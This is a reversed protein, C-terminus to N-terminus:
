QFDDSSKAVSSIVIHSLALEIANQYIVKLYSKGEEIGQRLYCIYDVIEELADQEAERGNNSQLITGYTQLGVEKREQILVRLKQFAPYDGLDSVVLDHISVGDNKIPEPQM